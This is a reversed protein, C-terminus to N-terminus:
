KGICFRSFISDLLDAGANRGTIQDLEQVTTKIEESVFEPSAEEELARRARLLSERARHLSQIHRANSVMLTFTHVPRGNLVCRVIAEELEDIARRQIVSIRVTERDGFLAGLRNEDIKQDLDCKNVAILLNKDKLRTFLTEDEETLPRGADLVLLVLDASDVARHSRKVAEEEILDRPEIIGATDVLQFPVGRLQAAEELTDRTTGAFESVIARPQRLLLNLLSSKGVNAKGCIAIKMGDRLIRGQESSDLLGEIRQIAKGAREDLQRRDAANIGDEPFNIVAELEVYVSMLAERIEELERNLEGKLQSVSVRQFAETRSQIIDLVAEAQTLDVRGNLFARRTFEGPEAMRAGLEIALHLISRVVVLGGHCSFEVMDEKTYSRPARMVTLLVEDVPDEGGPSKKVVWGHHVSHSRFASVPQGNGARFMREAVAVAEAGSMRVIGIGGQGVPTSIAAITDYVSEESM